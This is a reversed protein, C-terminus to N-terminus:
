NQDSSNEMWDVVSKGEQVTIDRHQINGTFKLYSNQIAKTYYQLVMFYIINIYAQPLFLQSLILLLWSLYRLMINKPSHISVINRPLKENGMSLLKCIPCLIHVTQPWPVSVARVPMIKSYWLMSCQTLKWAIICTNQCIVLLISLPFIDMTASLMLTARYVSYTM